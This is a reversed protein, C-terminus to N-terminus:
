AAHAARMPNPRREMLMPLVIDFHQEHFRLVIQMSSIKHQACFEIAQTSSLFDMADMADPTTIGVDKLYRGSEKHQLLVKM